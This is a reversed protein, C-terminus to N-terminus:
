LGSFPILYGNIANLYLLLRFTISKEMPEGLKIFDVPVYIYYCFKAEPHSLRILLLRSLIFDFVVRLFRSVRITSKCLGSYYGYNTTVVRLLKLTLAIARRGTRGTSFYRECKRFM